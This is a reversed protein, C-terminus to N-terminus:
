NHLDLMKLSSSIFSEMALVVPLSESMVAIRQLNVLVVHRSQGGAGGGVDLHLVEYEGLLVSFFEQGDHGVM